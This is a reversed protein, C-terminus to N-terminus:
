LSFTRWIPIRTICALPRYQETAHSYCSRSQELTLTSGEPSALSVGPLHELLLARMGRYYCLGYCNPVVVGQLPKLRNYATVETDFLEREILEDGGQKQSKLVIRDPLFWEPFIRRAWSQAFSPLLNILRGLAGATKSPRPQLALVHPHRSSLVSALASVYRTRFWFHKTNRKM